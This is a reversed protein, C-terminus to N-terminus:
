YNLAYDKIPVSQTVMRSPWPALPHGLSSDSTISPCPREDAPMWDPRADTLVAKLFSPPPSATAQDMTTLATCRATNLRRCFEHHMARACFSVQMKFTPWWVILSEKSDPASNIIMLLNDDFAAKLDPDMLFTTHIRPPPNGGKAIPPPHQPPTKPSIHLIIPQHDSLFSGTHAKGNPGIDAKAIYKDMSQHLYYRDIRSAGAYHHHSFTCRHPHRLRYSDVMEQFYESWLRSIRMDPHQPSAAEKGTRRDLPPYGTFNFDGGWVPLRTSTSYESFLPQLRHHIFSRQDAPSNPLHISSIALRHGNWDILATLIRGDTSASPSPQLIISFAPNEYSFPWGQAGDTLNALAMVANPM